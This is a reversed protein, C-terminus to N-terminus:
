DLYKVPNGPFRTSKLIQKGEASMVDLPFWVIPEAEWQHKISGSMVRAVYDKHEQYRKAVLQLGEESLLCKGRFHVPFLYFVNRNNFPRVVVKYNMQKNAGMEWALDATSRAHHIGTGHGIGEPGISFTQHDFFRTPTGAEKCHFYFSLVNESMYDFYEKITQSSDLKEYENLRTTGSVDAGLVTCSLFAVFLSSLVTKM